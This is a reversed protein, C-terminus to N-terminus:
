EELCKKYKEYCQVRCKGFNKEKYKCWSKCTDYKQNCKDRKAWDNQLSISLLSLLILFLYIIRM